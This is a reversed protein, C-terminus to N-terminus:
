SFVLIVSQGTAVLPGQFLYTSSSSLESLCTLLLLKFWARLSFACFVISVGSSTYLPLPSIKAVSSPDTTTFSARHRRHHGRRCLSVETGQSAPGDGPKSAEDQVRHGGDSSRVVLILRDVELKWDLRLM